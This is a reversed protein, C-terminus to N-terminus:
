DRSTGPASAEQPRAPCTGSTSRRPAGCRTITGDLLVAFVAAPRDITVSGEAHTMVDDGEREAILLSCERGRRM